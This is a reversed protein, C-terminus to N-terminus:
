PRDAPVFNMLAVRYGAGDCHLVNLCGYDQEIRFLNATPLGLAQCLVVRNFGAHGVIAVDGTSTAVIDAMAVVARRRLDAFSEGGAIRHTEIDRGRTAFDAPFRDAIEDVPCGEWVGMAVERLDRRPVIPLGRDGAIIRATALSRDLDSCFVCSIDRRALFGALRGAQTVGDDNLPIDSQGVYRRRENGVISGHRALYLKRENMMRERHQDNAQGAQVRAPRAM